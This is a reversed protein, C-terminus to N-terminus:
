KKAKKTTRKKTQKKDLVKSMPLSTKKREHNKSRLKPMEHESTNSQIDKDNKKKKQKVPEKDHEDAESEKEKNKREALAIMYDDDDMFVEIQEILLDREEKTINPSNKEVFLKIRKKKKMYNEPMKELLEKALKEYDMKKYHQTATRQLFAEKVESYREWLPDEWLLKQYFFGIYRGHKRVLCRVIKTKPDFGCPELTFTVNADGIFKETPTIFTLSNKRKRLTEVLNIINDVFRNSGIGQQFIMEDQMFSQGPESTAVKEILESYETCVREENFTPDIVTKNYALGVSSKMSGTEGNIQTVLWNDRSGNHLRQRAEEIITPTLDIKQKFVRRLDREHKLRDKLIVEHLPYLEYAM